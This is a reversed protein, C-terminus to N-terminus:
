STTETPRGPQHSQDHYILPPNDKIVFKGGSGEVMKPFDTEAVSSRRRRPSASACRAVQTDADSLSALVAKKDIRAYWVDLAAMKAYDAIRERYARVCAMAADRQDAAAFGNSRAALM